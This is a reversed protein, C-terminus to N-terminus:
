EHRLVVTPDTRTAPRVALAGAALSVVIVLLAAGGFGIPDALSVGFLVVSLIRSMAAGAAVGIVAGIVVPRMTQRLIMALVSRAGAGLAMRIGIERYRRSVSYSVVGYVGVTALLLALAGLGAGLTAVTGSMARWWALNAELPLVQVPLRPDLARVTARIVSATTEFGTRGKVLIAGWGPEYVYYPDIQGLTTLRADAAVGIVQLTVDPDSDVFASMTLTQGIPDVNPFLNRATTESVIVPRAGGGREANAIEAEAFTRGRVIPLGLVRFYDPSVRNTEAERAESKQEGPRRIEVSWTDGGLPARMATAVAEVGPLAKLEDMLRQRLVATEEPGYGAAGAMQLSVYAVDDYDFGPDITYTAYLGRVLLGAAIMLAMCLAVQAGILTGRLREGRGSSGAGTTDQKIVSNLDQKSVHLAPALGFLIGTGFTLVAAFLLVRLDPSLDWAFSFSLEPPVLSPLALTVLAQFSWLSLVAGLLGGAVSIVMSEILLQRIVRGRSAGLSLRIGIEQARTTGRALLLNAVNACAILLVFGFAAMLVVAAGTAARRLQPPLTVPTAPEITLTTSRGPEQQDIQAAIVGLEARVQEIDARESRRGLLYIWRAKDNEYLSQNRALLPEASIPAFYGVKLFGGNYATESAVGVVTFLQRNLEITRGLIGSDAAFKTSWLDHGLIVVPEAGEECDPAALGRGLAPPQRMVDFANCSVLAGYISQPSDGGLITEGRVRGSALVGSLTQSRDRYARYESTTFTGEGTHSYEEVDKVMQTISVLEHADPAPLARFLVGNLVTFIGANVGIGLALTVVAAATFGPSRKLWRAAYRVDSLVDQILRVVAAYRWADITEEHVLLRNGFELRARRRAEDAPVGSDMLQQERMALHFEMEESARAKLSRTRFLASFRVRADIWIQKLTQKLM